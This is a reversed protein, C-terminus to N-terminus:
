LAVCICRCLHVHLHTSQQLTQHTWKAHVAKTGMKPDRKPDRKPDGVTDQCSPTMQM